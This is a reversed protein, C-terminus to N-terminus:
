RVRWLYLVREDGLADTFRDIKDAPWGSMGFAHSVIRTGPKLQRELTPKLQDNGSSLLYLTVVTADSINATTADELRFSVLREVGAQRANERAEKVRVPDIEIGIARAGYKKAAAIVIRGDGSGLDYVIDDKTVGALALMRDVVDPPTPVYPALGGRSRQEGILACNTIAALILVACAKRIEMGFPVRRM